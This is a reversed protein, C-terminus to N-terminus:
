KVSEVKGDQGFTVAVVKSRDAWYTWTTSDLSPTRYPAPYGLAALVGERSMGEYAVGEFVGAIDVDTFGDFPVPDPSTILKVYQQVPMQAHLENYYFIVIKKDNVVRFWLKDDRSSLIELQTGAQIIQHGEGSDIYNDVSAKYVVSGDSRVKEKVHINYRNYVTSSDAFIDSPWLLILALSLFLVGFIINDIKEIM